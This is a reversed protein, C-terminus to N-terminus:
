TAGCFRQDLPPSAVPFLEGPGTVNGLYLESSEILSSYIDSMLVRAARDPRDAPWFCSPLGPDRVVIRRFAHVTLLRLAFSQAPLPSSRALAAALPSCALSFRRYAECTREMDWIATGLAYATEPGLQGKLAFAGPILPPEVGEPAAYLGAVVVQFGAAVLAADGRARKVAPPLIVLDLGDGDGRGKGDYVRAFAAAFEENARATLSYSPSARQAAREFLGDRVLRSMATRIAGGELGVGTLLDVIARISLVGGRPVVSDGFLTVVLSAARVPRNAHFRAVAEAVLNAFPESAM